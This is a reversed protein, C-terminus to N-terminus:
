SAEVIALTAQVWQLIQWFKAGGTLGSITEMIDLSLVSTLQQLWIWEIQESLLTLLLQSLQQNVTQCM